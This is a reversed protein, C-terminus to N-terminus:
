AGLQHRERIRDRVTEVRGEASIRDGLLYLESVKTPTLDALRHGYKSMLLNAIAEFRDFNEFWSPERWIVRDGHKILVDGGEQYEMDWTLAIVEGPLDPLQEVNHLKRALHEQEKKELAVVQMRAAEDLEDWHERAERITPTRVADVKEKCTPCRLFYDYPSIAELTLAHGAGSWSCKACNFHANRWNQFSFWM